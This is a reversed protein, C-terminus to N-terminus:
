SFHLHVFDRSEQFLYRWLKLVNLFFYLWVYACSVQNLSLFFYLKKNIQWMYFSLLVLVGVALNVGREDNSTILQLKYNESEKGRRKRKQLVLLIFSLYNHRVFVLNTHPIWTMVDNMKGALREQNWIYLQDGFLM